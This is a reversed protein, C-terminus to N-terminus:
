LFSVLILCLIFILGGDLMGWAVNDRVVLEKRLSM